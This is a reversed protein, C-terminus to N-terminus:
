TWGLGIDDLGVCGFGVEGLRMLNSWCRLKRCVAWFICLGASLRSATRASLGLTLEWFRYSFYKWFLNTRVVIWRRLVSPLKLINLM